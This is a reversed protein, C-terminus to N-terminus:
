SAGGMKFHSVIGRFSCEPCTCDSGDNWEHMSTDGTGDDFVTLCASVYIEFPQLSSCQPCRMGELCNVNARM